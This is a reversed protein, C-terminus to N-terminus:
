QENYVYLTTIINYTTQNESLVAGTALSRDFRKLAGDPRALRRRQSRLGEQGAEATGGGADREGNSGAKVVVNQVGGPGGVICAWLVGFHRIKRLGTWGCRPSWWWVREAQEFM